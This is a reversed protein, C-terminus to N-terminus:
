AGDNLIKIAAGDLQETLRCQCSLRSTDTINPLSDLMFIENDEKKGLKEFGEKFTVHCTGCSAMGGCIAPVDFDKEVLVEMLSSGPDPELELTQVSGDTDEVQIKIM